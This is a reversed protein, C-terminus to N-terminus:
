FLSIGCHILSNLNVSGFAILSIGQRMAVFPRAVPAVKSSIIGAPVRGPLLQDVPSFTRVAKVRPSERIKCARFENVADTNLTVGLAASGV